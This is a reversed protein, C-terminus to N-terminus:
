LNIIINKDKDSLDFKANKWKPPGMFGKADNSCGFNETPIGLGNTDMEGNDNKDHFVSVAYVGTPVNKFTIISTKNTIVEIGGKIEKKLFDDENDYLAFFMKGDDNKANKVEVKIDFTKQQQANALSVVFTFVAVYKIIKCM